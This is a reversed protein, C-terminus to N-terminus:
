LYHTVKFYPLQELLSHGQVKGVLLTTIKGKRPLWQEQVNLKEYFKISEKTYCQQSIKFITFNQYSTKIFDNTNGLVLYLRYYFISPIYSLMPLMNKCHTDVLWQM